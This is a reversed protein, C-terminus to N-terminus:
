WLAKDRTETAQLAYERTLINGVKHEYLVNSDRVISGGDELKKFDGVRGNTALQRGDVKPKGRALCAPGQKGEKDKRKSTGGRKIVVVGIRMRGRLSSNKHRKGLLLVLLNSIARGRDDQEGSLEKSSSVLKDLVLNVWRGDDSTVPVSKHNCDVVVHDVHTFFM